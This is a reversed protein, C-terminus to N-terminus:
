IATDMDWIRIWAEYSACSKITALVADCMEKIVNIYPKTVGKRVLCGM